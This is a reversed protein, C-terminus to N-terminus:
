HQDQQGAQNFMSSGRNYINNSLDATLGMTQGFRGFAQGLLDSELGALGQGQGMMSGFSALDGAKAREAVDFASLQRQLDAQSMGQGFAEMTRQGGTSGSIGMAQMREFMKDQARQEQPAAQERMTALTSAQLDGYGQNLRGLVDGAAGFVNEQLGRQFGDQSLRSADGFAMGSLQGAQGVGANLGPLHQMAM